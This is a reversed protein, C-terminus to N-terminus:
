RTRVGDYVEGKQRTAGQLIQDVTIQVGHKVTRDPAKFEAGYLHCGIVLYDGHQCDKVADAERSFFSVPLTVSKSQFGGQAAPRVLETELLLKVMLKDKKTRRLEPDVALRGTLYIQSHM